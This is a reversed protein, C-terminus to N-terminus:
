KTVRKWLFGELPEAWKMRKLLTSRKISENNKVVESISDWSRIISGSLTLQLIGQKNANNTRHPFAAESSVYEWRFGGSTKIRGTAAAGISSAEISLHNAAAAITVWERILEGTLSLQKVARGSGRESNQKTSVWELNEVRNDCRNRNRHDIVDATPDPKTLFTEGVLRHVQKLEKSLSVTMYGSVSLTLKRIVHTSARRVRGLSSIEYAPHNPNLRWEELEFSEQNALQRGSTATIQLGCWSKATRILYHMHHQSCRLQRSAEAVSPYVEIADTFENKIQVTTMRRIGSHVAHKVNEKQTVWELNTLDFNARNGDIHNVVNGTPAGLFTLAVLRHIKQASRKGDDNTLTVCPYDKEPFRVFLKNKNHHNRIVGRPNIEYRQFGPVIQFPM